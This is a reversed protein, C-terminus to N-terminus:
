NYTKLYGMLDEIQAPTLTYRFGPMKDSGERIRERVAIEQEPKVNKLIGRLNRGVFPSAKSPRGLHCIPCHRSFVVEGRKVREKDVVSPAAKRLAQQSQLVNPPSILVCCISLRVLIRRVDM